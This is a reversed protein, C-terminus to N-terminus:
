LLDGGGGGRLMKNEVKRERHPHTHIHYIQDSERGARVLPQLPHSPFPALMLGSYSAM